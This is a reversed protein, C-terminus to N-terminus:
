SSDRQDRSRPYDESSQDEEVISTEFWLEATQANTISIAIGRGDVEASTSQLDRLDSILLKFQERVHQIRKDKM